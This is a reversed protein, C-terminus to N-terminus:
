RIHIAFCKTEKKNHIVAFGAWEVMTQPSAFDHPNTNGPFGSLGKSIKSKSKARPAQVWDVFSSTLPWISWWSFSRYVWGPIQLLNEISSLSLHEGNHNINDKQLPMRVPRVILPPKSVLRLYHGQVSSNSIQNDNQIKRFHFCKLTLWLVFETTPKISKLNARSAGCLKVLM